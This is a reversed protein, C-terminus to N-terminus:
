TTPFYHLKSYSIHFPKEMKQLLSNMKIGKLIM